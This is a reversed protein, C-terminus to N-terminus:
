ATSATKWRLKPREPLSSSYKTQYIFLRLAFDSLLEINDRYLKYEELLDKGSLKRARLHGFIVNPVLESKEADGYETLPAHIVDNRKDAIKGNVEDILWIVENLLAPQTALAVTAAAKLMARQGRDNDSSNWAAEAILNPCDASSKPGFLWVFIRGLFHQLRNWHLVILGIERLIQESREGLGPM